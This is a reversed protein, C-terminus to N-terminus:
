KLYECLGMQSQEAVEVFVLFKHNLFVYDAEFM